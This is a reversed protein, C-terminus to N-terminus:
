GVSLEDLYYRSYPRVELGHVKNSVPIVLSTSVLPVIPLNEGAWQELGRVAQGKAETDAAVAFENFQTLVQDVPAGSGFFKSAYMYFFVDGATPSVNSYTGVGIDYKGAVVRELLVQLDLEEVEVKVGIAELDARILEIQPSDGSTAETVLHLTEGDYSSEELAAGAAEPDYDWTDCDCGVSGITGSPIIGEVPTALGNYAIEVLQERNVAHSVAQRFAVDQGLSSAYNFIVDLNKSAPNVVQREGEDVQAALSPDLSEIIDADGSEFQALQQSPASVVKYTVKDLAPGDSDHYHENRTLVTEVGASYKEVVFPGAGIPARYFEERSKGGYNEPVVPAVGSALFDLLFTSPRTLAITVTRDDVAKAEKIDAFMSGLREGAVWETASFAVDKATLPKGDSFTLGERLTFTYSPAAADFKWSEALAPEITVGDKAVRVLGELVNPLTVWSAIVRAGDPDWGDIDNTRLITIEGGRSPTGAKPDASTESEGGGGCAALLLSSSVLLSTLGRRIIM